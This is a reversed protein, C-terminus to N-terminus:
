ILTQIFSSLLFIIVISVTLYYAILEWGRKQSGPTSLINSRSETDSSAQLLILVIVSIGLLIQIVTLATNM